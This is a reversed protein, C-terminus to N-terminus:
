STHPPRDAISARLRYTRIASWILVTLMTSLMCFLPVGLLATLSAIFEIPTWETAFMKRNDWLWRQSTDAYLRTLVFIASLVASGAILFRKIANRKDSRLAVFIFTAIQLMIAFILLGSNCFELLGNTLMRNQLLYIGLAANLSAVTMAAFM